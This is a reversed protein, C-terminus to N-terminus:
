SDLGASCIVTNAYATSIVFELTERHAVCFSTFSRSPLKNRDQVAHIECRIFFKSQVVGTMGGASDGTHPDPRFHLVTGRRTDYQQQYWIEGPSTM